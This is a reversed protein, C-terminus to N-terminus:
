QATGVGSTIKVQMVKTLVEVVRPFVQPTQVGSLLYLVKGEFKEIFTLALSPSSKPLGAPSDALDTFSAPLLKYLFLPSRRNILSRKISSSIYCLMSPM